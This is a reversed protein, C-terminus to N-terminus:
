GAAAVFLAFWTVAIEAAVANALAKSRLDSAAIGIRRDDDGRSGERRRPTARARVRGVILGSRRDQAGVSRLSARITTIPIRVSLPAAGSRSGPDNFGPPAASGSRGSTISSRSSLCLDFTTSAV